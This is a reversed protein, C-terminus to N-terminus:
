IQKCLSSAIITEVSAAYIKADDCGMAGAFTYLGTTLLVEKHGMVGAGQAVVSHDGAASIQAGFDIFKTIIGEEMAKLYDDSTAPCISLRYGQALKKGEILQCAKRLEEITGGTFGGIQGADVHLGKLNKLEKIIAFRQEERTQCPLMIMPEVNDLNFNTFTKASNETVFATVAGTLSAIGCLVTQEHESLTPCYFEIVKGSLNPMHSLFALAADFISVGSQLSGTVSIYVTEPVIISFRGTEVVRALEPRSVNLGLAGKSGFVSAHNGGGIIIEGKKVMEDIMYQYGLGKAQIYRCNFKQSFEFNKRLIDASEPSGTPVDHDYIVLVKDPNEVATIENVAAHSIGDTIVIYDPEIRAIQGASQGLLKEIM